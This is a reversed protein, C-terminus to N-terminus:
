KSKSSAIWTLKHWIFELPGQKHNKLWWNSFALQLLFLVIGIMLSFVAGTYKFLGLGYQYFLVSGVISQLVYNTLSMKGYPVLKELVKQTKEKAYFLIFLSILVFTFAFNAWSTVILMISDALTKNEFSSYINIRIILLIAVIILAYRLTKKWFIFNVKSTLFLQKRGALTGLVFLGATQFCKGTDWNWLFSSIRGTTLNGIVVDVFSNGKLYLQTQYSYFSRSSEKIVYESNFLLNFVKYWELPLLLLFIAIGFVYKTKLNSVLLLVIGLVAYLMLIDGAFFITNFIGFCFLLILRWLFRPRFNKGKKKQNENQIFFSFGFLFAFIAYAKGAFLYSFVSAVISDLTKISEPLYEPIYDIDFHQMCHLLVIIMLAFGRLADVVEIRKPNNAIM